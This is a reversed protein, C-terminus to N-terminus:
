SLAMWKRGFSEVLLVSLFAVTIKTVNLGFVVATREDLKVHPCIILENVTLPYSVYMRIVVYQEHSSINALNWCCSRFAMNFAPSYLLLVPTTM